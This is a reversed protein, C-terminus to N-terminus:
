DFHPELSYTWRSVSIKCIFVNGIDLYRIKFYVNRIDLYRIGMVLQTWVDEEQFYFASKDFSFGITRLYKEKFIMYDFIFNSNKPKQCM